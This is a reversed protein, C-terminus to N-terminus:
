PNFMEKVVPRIADWNPLLVSAGQDTITPYVMERNIVRSDIGGPGARLIAFGLRPILWTPINTDVANRFARYVAPLRFLNRPMLINKFLTRIMFQSNAMRHFDDSTERNRVFALAKRPKLFHKGAPYGANPESLEIQVGGLVEIIEWFGEFRVRAYYDAKVGFNHQITDITTQPGLGPQAAEGFFHATNIRNEGINPITVWLDRPISLLGIYPELPIITSLIITDTRAVNSGPPAYDTGLLLINTRAPFFLYITLISGVLLAPVLLM